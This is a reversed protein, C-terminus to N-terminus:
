REEQILWEGKPHHAVEKSFQDAFKNCERYIHTCSIQYFHSKSFLADDLINKITHVHCAIIFNFWNIVIKSDWFVQLKQCNQNLSFYLLHLLLLLEAFNNIGVGLGM